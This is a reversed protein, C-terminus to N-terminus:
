GWKNVEERRGGERGGEREYLGGTRLTALGHLPRLFVDLLVGLYASLSPLFSPHLSPPPHYRMMSMLLPVHMCVDV